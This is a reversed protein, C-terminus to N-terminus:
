VCCLCLTCFSCYTCCCLFMLVRLLLVSECVVMWVLQVIRVCVSFFFHNSLKPGMVGKLLLWWNNLSQNLYVRFLNLHMRFLTCISAVATIQVEYKVVVPNILEVWVYVVIVMVVAIRVIWRHITVVGGVVVCVGIWVVDVRVIIVRVKLGWILSITVGILWLKSVPMKSYKWSDCYPLYLEADLYIM